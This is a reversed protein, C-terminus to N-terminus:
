GQRFPTPGPPMTAPPGTPPRTEISIGSGTARSKRGISSRSISLRSSSGRRVQSPGAAPSRSVTRWRDAFLNVGVAPDHASPASFDCRAGRESQLRLRQVQPDTRVVVRLLGQDARGLYVNLLEGPYLAPGCMGGQDRRGDAHVTELTSDYEEPSGGARLYWREGGTAEGEAVVPLEPLPMEGEEM